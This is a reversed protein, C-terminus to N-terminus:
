ALLQEQEPFESTAESSAPSSAPDDQPIWHAYVRLLTLANAWGGPKVLALPPAGRSLLVSTWSHRLSHPKKYPLGARRLTKTWLRFFQSVRMPWIRAQPDPTTAILVQLRDLVARTGIGAKKPEWDPRDETAPYLVSTKRVSSPTKTPGLVNGSFSGRVHVTASALDVDTRRLGLGEGPRLSSQVMVQLLVAFDADITRAAALIARCESSTFPDVVETSAALKWLRGTARMPNAPLLGRRAAHDLILRLVPLNVKLTADSLTGQMALVFQQLALTTFRDPTVPWAGFRPILHRELFARQNRATSARPKMLQVHLDLAERAVEAFTPVKPTIAKPQYEQGLLRAADVRAAAVQAEQESKFAISTRRGASDRTRLWWCRRPTCRGAAQVGRLRPASATCRGPRCDFHRDRVVRSKM